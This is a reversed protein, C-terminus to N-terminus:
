SGTWCSSSATSPSSPPWSRSRSPLRRRHRGPRQHLHPTAPGAHALLRRGSRSRLGRGVPAHAQRDPRVRRDHRRRPLSRDAGPGRDRDLGAGHGPVDVAGHGGPPQRRRHHGDPDRRRHVRRVCREALVHTHPPRPQAAPARAHSRSAPALRGAAGSSPSPAVDPARLARLRRDPRRRHRHSRRTRRTRGSLHPHLGAPREGCQRGRHDRAPDAHRAPRPVPRAGRPRAVHPDFGPHPHPLLGPLPRAGHRTSGASLGGAPQSRPRRLDLGAGAAGGGLRKSSTGCRTTPGDQPRWGPSPVPPATRSSTSSSSSWASLSRPSAWPPSRPREWTASWRRTSWPSCPIPPWRASPPYPSAWSRGTKASTWTPISVSPGCGVVLRRGESPPHRTCRPHTHRPITPAYGRSRAPLSWPTVVDSRVLM